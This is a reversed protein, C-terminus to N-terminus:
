VSLQRGSQQVLQIFLNEYKRVMAQISFDREIRTLARNGLGERLVTDGLVRRAQRVLAEEDGIPVVIGGDEESRIIERTGGADTAVVPVGACMAEMVANPMGEWDSTQILLDTGALVAAMDAQYGLLLCHDALGLQRISTELDKQLGGEGCIALVLDPMERVLRAGIRLFLQQNKSEHLRGLNLVVRRGAGRLEALRPHPARAQFEGADLGNHIVHIRSPPVHLDRAVHEAVAASNGIWGTTWFNLTRDVLGRLTSCRLITREEAIVVPVGTWLAALRGFRYGSPLRCVLVDPRLSLILRRLSRLFGLTGLRARDLHVLGIPLEAMARALPTDKGEYYVVTVKLRRHDISRCLWFLQREAGDTPLQPCVFLIRMPSRENSGM